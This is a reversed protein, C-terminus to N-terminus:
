RRIFRKVGNVIYFGGAPRGQIRRGQLDYCAAAPTTAADDTLVHDIGTTPDTFRFELRNAPSGSHKYYIKNASAMIYGGNDTGPNSLVGNANYEQYMPYLAALGNAAGFKYCTVGSGGQVPKNYASGSLKNGNLPDKSTSSYTLTYPTTAEPATTTVLLVATQQPLITTGNSEPQVQTMTIRTVGDGEVTTEGAMYYAEVGAPLTVEHNSYFGAKGYSTISIPHQVTTLDSVQTATWCDAAGAAPTDAQAAASVTGDAEASLVYTSADTFAFQGSSLDRSALVIEAAVEGMSLTGGAFSQVYLGTHVNQMTFTKDKGAVPTLLWLAQSRETTKDNVTQVMGAKASLHCTAPDIALSHDTLASLGSNFTYYTPATPVFMTLANYKTGLANTFDVLETDTYTKDNTFAAYADSMASLFAGHNADSAAFGLQDTTLTYGGKAEYVKYENYLDVYKPRAGSLKNRQLLFLAKEDNPTALYGMNYTDKLNGAVPNSNSALYLGANGTESTPIARLNVYSSNSANTTIEWAVCSATNFDESGEVLFKIKGNGTALDGAISCMRRGDYSYVYIEPIKAGQMFYFAQNPNNIEAHLFTAAPTVKVPKVKYPDWTGNAGAFKGNENYQLVFGNGYKETISYYIIADAKSLTFPLYNYYKINKAELTLAKCKDIHTICADLNTGNYATKAESLETRMEDVLETLTAKDKDYKTQWTYTAGSVSVIFGNEGKYENDLLDIQEKLLEKAAFVKELTTKCTTIVPGLTTAALTFDKATSADSRLVEEAPTIADQLTSVAESETTSLNSRTVSLEALYYFDANQYTSTVRFRLYKYVQDAIGLTGSSFTGSATNPLHDDATYEKITTYTNDDVSGEVVMTKIHSYADSATNRNTYNFSFTSIGSPYSVRIWQDQLPKRNDGYNSHFYTDTNGDLLNYGQDQPSYDSSGLHPDNCFLYGNATPTLVQLNGLYSKAEAIYSTLENKALLSVAALVSENTSKTFTWSTADGDTSWGVVRYNRNDDLKSEAAHMKNRGDSSDTTSFTNYTNVTLFYLNCASTAADTLTWNANEGAGVLFKGNGVNRLTYNPNTGATNVRYVYWYQSLYGDTGDAITAAATAVNNSNPTLSREGYAKNVIRYVGGLELSALQAEAVLALLPAFLVALLALRLSPTKGM